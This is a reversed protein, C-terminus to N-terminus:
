RATEAAAVTARSLRTGRPGGLLETEGTKDYVCAYAVEARPDAAGYTGGIGVHGFCEDNPGLVAIKSGGSMYGMRWGVPVVLVLDGRDNQVTTARQITEPRLIRVGDVEGGRELAAYVKAVSRATFVGSISPICSKYGAPSNLFDFLGRTGFAKWPISDRQLLADFADDPDMGEPLGAQHRILPAVRGLESDPLGIYLGDLGLPGALEEALFTSVDRGDIRRLMEGVLWGFNVAHYGNATGPEWLPTLGEMVSVMHEWDDVRSSDPVQDRIQPVGAEHCLVHRIAIADKGNTGFEPWVSAVSAGPDIGNREMAMHLATAAIGKTTSWCLAMTDQEWPEEGRSTNRKGGWIDIVHEGRFYAAFALGHHEGSAIQQAVIEAVEAFREDCFGDLGEPLRTEPM